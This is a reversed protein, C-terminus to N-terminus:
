PFSQALQSNYVHLLYSLLALGCYLCTFKGFSIHSLFVGEHIAASTIWDETASISQEGKTCSTNLFSKSGVYPLCQFSFLSAFLSSLMKWYCLQVSTQLYVVFSGGKDLFEGRVVCRWQERKEGSDVATGTVIKSREARREMRCM